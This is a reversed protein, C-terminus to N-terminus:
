DDAKAKRRKKPEPAAKLIKKMAEDFSANIKLSGKRRQPSSDADRLEQLLADADLPKSRSM